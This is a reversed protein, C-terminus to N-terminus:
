EHQHAVISGVIDRAVEKKSKLPFEKAGYKQSIIEIKNTDFGFGAGADNLSNLVILDFNKAKLKKEANSKGYETELAFGVIVQGNKKMAGLEAAIDPTRTLELTLNGETKKIKQDAKVLPKYDAVAASLVAIDASPFFKRCSAYMEDASVVPHLTIGSHCTQQHTPGIVLDVLAGEEALAEAIAFGMKGSSHNGIFRVPDIAEYTPGATVLAKKGNLKKKSSFFNELAKVIEGPEAMRGNGILGSALEGFEPEIQRNGYQILKSINNVSSPHRLMDLDMAPAFFVPCRASLYTALLLNDCLGNAMKALTNASAPAIVFADAWLGLEVHNNWEGTDSKQFQTLVPNRSLTSLTLPTIFELAAPTLIVKVEAEQQILLRTLHAAKYAAISGTVGLLIKRGSLM